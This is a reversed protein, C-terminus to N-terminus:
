NASFSVSIRNNKQAIANWEGASIANNAAPYTYRPISYAQSALEVEINGELLIPASHLYNLFGVSVQDNVTVEPVRSALFVCDELNSEPEPLIFGGSPDEVVCFNGLHIDLFVAGSFNAAKLLALLEGLMYIRQDGLPTEGFAIQTNVNVAWSLADLLVQRDAYATAATRNEASDNVKAFLRNILEEQARTRDILEDYRTNLLEQHRNNIYLHYGLFAIGLLIIGLFVSSVSSKEAPTEVVFPEMPAVPEAPREASAPVARNVARNKDQADKALRRLLFKTSDEIEQRVKAIHLEFLRSIQKQVQDLDSPTESAAPAEDTDDFSTLPPKVLPGEDIVDTLVPEAAGTPNEEANRAAIGLSSLVKELSAQKIVEKGLIDIAGLARAQGVYVDGQESTYMIVPILATGPNSKIIKLAELGDMGEMHHDLFIVAPQRYSLYGLAEEASLVTDVELDFRELMKRLRVQATKSDDVILARRRAM